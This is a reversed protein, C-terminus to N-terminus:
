LRGFFGQRREMESFSGVLGHGGEIGFCDFVPGRTLNYPLLEQVGHVGDAELNSLSMTRLPIKLGRPIPIRGDCDVFGMRRM